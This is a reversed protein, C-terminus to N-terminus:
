LFLQKPEQMKNRYRPSCSKDPKWSNLAVRLNACDPNKQTGTSHTCWHLMWQINPVKYWAFNWVQVKCRATFPQIRFSVNIRLCKKYSATGCFIMKSRASGTEKFQNMKQQKQLETRTEPETSPFSGWTHMCSCPHVKWVALWSGAEGLM